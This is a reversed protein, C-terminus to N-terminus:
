QWWRPAAAKDSSVAHQKAWFLYFLTSFSALFCSFDVASNIIAKENTLLLLLRHIWLKQLAAGCTNQYINKSEPHELGSPGSIDLWIDSIFFLIVVEM